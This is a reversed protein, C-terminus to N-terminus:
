DGPQTDISSFWIQGHDKAYALLLIMGTAASDLFTLIDMFRSSYGVSQGPLLWMLLFLALMSAWTGFRAWRKFWYLGILSAFMWLALGLVLLLIAIEAEFGADAPPGFHKSVLADFDDSFDSWVAGLTEYVALALVAIVLLLDIQVLRRFTTRNLDIIM